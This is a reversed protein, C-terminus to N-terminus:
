GHLRNFGLQRNEPRQEVAAGQLRDALALIFYTFHHLEPVAILYQHLLMGEGPKFAGPDHRLVLASLTHNQIEVAATIDVAPQVVGLAEARGQSGLAAVPHKARGVPQSRLMPIGRSQLIGQFGILVQQGLAIGGVM